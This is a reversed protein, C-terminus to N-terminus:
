RGTLLFAKLLRLRALRQPLRAPETQGFVLGCMISFQPPPLTRDFM